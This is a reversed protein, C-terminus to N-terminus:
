SFSQWSSLPWSFGALFLTVLFFVAFFFGVFFFVLLFFAEVPLPELFFVELFVTVFFFVACLVPAARLFTAFFVAALVCVVRALREFPAALFCWKCGDLDSARIWPM